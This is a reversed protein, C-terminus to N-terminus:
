CAPQDKGSTLDFRYLDILERIDSNNENKIQYATLETIFYDRWVKKNLITKNLKDAEEDSLDGRLFQHIKYHISKM